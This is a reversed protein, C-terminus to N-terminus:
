LSTALLVTFHSCKSETWIISCIGRIQSHQGLIYLRLSSVGATKMFFMAACHLHYTVMHEQAMPCDLKLNRTGTSWFYFRILPYLPLQM